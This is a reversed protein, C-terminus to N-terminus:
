CSACGSGYLQRILWILVIGNQLISKLFPDGLSLRNQVESPRYVLYDVPLDTEMMRYLQRIRETGTYPVDDKIILLDVDNIEEADRAASGFLIMKEAAYPGALQIKLEEIRDMIELRTM